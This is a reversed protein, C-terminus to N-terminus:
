HGQTVQGGLAVVYGPFDSVNNHDAGPIRVLNAVGPPFARALKESSRNPIVQDQTAVILTTPVTMRSAYRWSEYRDRLILRIPFLKFHDAALEAISDYPTVLVLRDTPRSAAIQIAVGSGLSRGIISIRPHNKAVLDHLAIGDAVLSRESPTGSSGGYGRYHMAYIATGPFAQSLPAIARSVDEANGGFYLIARDSRIDNSSADNSSVVIRADERQLIVAPVDSNRGTPYYIYSRQSLYLLGCVSLYMLGALLIGTILLKPGPRM